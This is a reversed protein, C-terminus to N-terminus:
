KIKAGIKACNNLRIASLIVYIYVQFRHNVIEQNMTYYFQLYPLLSTVFLILGASTLSSIALFYLCILTFAKRKTSFLQKQHYVTM